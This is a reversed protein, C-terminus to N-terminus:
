KKVTITKVWKKGGATATITYKGPKTATAMGFKDIKLGSGKVKWKYSTINTGTGTLTIFAPKGVTLNPAKGSLKKLKVAKKVVSITIKLSKGNQAKATIVTKGASKGAKVAGSASV